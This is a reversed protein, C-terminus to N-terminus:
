GRFKVVLRRLERMPQSFRFKNKAALPAHIQLHKPWPKSATPATPLAALWRDTMAAVSFDRAVRSHAATSKAVLEERHAHLHVIAKAYGQVDSVPVLMGNGADVVDRIGSELDSVVPVVGHAMAELLSLPLGEADSALLFIDNQELLAPVQSNVVAGIFKVRQDPSSTMTRELEAQKDGQGAITWQFRIGSKKLDALIKPFLYVRKQPDIIRGFYLIRLPQGNQRQREVTPPMAVGYPLCLQSIGRLAEMGAFHEAIRPSVGVAADMCGAYPSIADYFCPADTQVVVMRHVGQPVYRLVEYTAAGLCTIVVTPRFDALTRLMSQMRDEFIMRRQNHLVVRVGAAEFDSAFPNEIEPSAVLVPIQRRSLEGSLNCVFTTSGGFVLSSVLAIRPTEAM